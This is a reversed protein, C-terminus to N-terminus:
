TLSRPHRRLLLNRLAALPSNSKKALMEDHPRRSLRHHHRHVADEKARWEQPKKRMMSSGAKLKKITNRFIACARRRCSVQSLLRREMEAVGLLASGSGQKGTVVPAYLHPLAIRTPEFASRDIMIFRVEDPTARTTGDRENCGVGFRHHRRYAPAANERPRRCDFPRRCAKGIAMESRHAMPTKSCMAWYCTRDRAIRCRSASM